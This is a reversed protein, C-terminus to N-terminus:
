HCAADRRLTAVAVKLEQRVNPFEVTLKDLTQCAAKKEAIANLSAALGYLAEPAHVGTKSRTYADDFAVAAASYDHKGYDARALLYQADVLKPGGSAIVAKAANEAAAFDKRAYAANGEQLILEPTRRPPPPPPPPPVDGADAPQAGLTGPPPSLAGPKAGAAPPAAGAATGAANDIKFNLDGIQKNLDEAQRQRANDIEDIRGHLSRVEDELRQVRGLLQATIDSPPAEGGAAPPPQYAGLSSGGAPPPAKALAQVQARLEAIQNQLLIGERSDVQAHAPALPAAIAALLVFCAVRLAKM